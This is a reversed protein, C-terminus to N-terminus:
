QTRRLRITLGVLRAVTKMDDTPGPIPGSVEIDVVDYGEPSIAWKNRHFYERLEYGMADVARYEDRRAGKRGYVSIDRQVIPRDSRLGDEDGIGFPPRILIFPYQADSPTPEITFIAPEGNWQSLQGSIPEYEMLAERLPINLDLTM